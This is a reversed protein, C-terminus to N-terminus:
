PLGPETQAYSLCVKPNSAVLASEECLSSGDELNGDGKTPYEM